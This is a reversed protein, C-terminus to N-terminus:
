ICGRSLQLTQATDRLSPEGRHLKTLTRHITIGRFVDKVRRVSKLAIQVYMPYSFFM